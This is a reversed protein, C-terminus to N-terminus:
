KLIKINNQATDVKIMGGIPLTCHPETHGFDVNAIVPKNKLAAKSKIIQSLLTRNMGYAEEFRGILIASIHKSESQQLISQLRRDFEKLDAPYADEELILIKDKLSPAFQTGQLLCFTGLHGGVVVGSAVGDQIIWYGDNSKIQRNDQDIFWKDDSWHESAYVEFPKSQALSKFFYDATYHNLFKQGFTSFHPGYYTVLGTKVFITNLLITIDSYGCFIKPNSKILDWDVYDLLQNCNYGGIATIIAKVSQDKFAEHLDLIRSEISSSGFVDSEYAHEAFSIKFGMNEFCKVAYNITDQSLIKMSSSPAIVRINDGPRLFDPYFINM